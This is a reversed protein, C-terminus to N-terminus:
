SDATRPGTAMLAMICIFNPDRQIPDSQLPGLWKNTKIREIASLINAADVNFNYESLRPAERGRLPRNFGNKSLLGRSNHGRDSRRENKKSNHGSGNGRRDISYPQCRDRVPRSEHDVVRKPRDETKTLYISGFLARLHNVEVRIKVPAWDDAVLPLDMRKMQFRSVFEKLMEKDRQKVKFIDSKRTEVKVAGVHSKVFAYRLLAFSDISNPSLNHYWIMAGKSLTEGFKKLQESEIEDDELDNGKIACIYSTVHKNPDM